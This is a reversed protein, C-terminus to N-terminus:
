DTEDLVYAIVQEATMARGEAWAAQGAAAPLAAWAATMAQEHRARLQPTPLADREERLAAAAGALHLARVPRNEAAAVGAFGELEYMPPHGLELSAAYAETFYANAAEPNARSHLAIFGLGILCRSMDDRDGLQHGLAVGEELLEQARAADEHQAALGAYSIAFMIGAPQELQRFIALSEEAVNRTLDIDGRRYHAAALFALSWAVGERDGAETFTVISETSLAIAEDFDGRNSAFYSAGNMAKARVSPAIGSGPLALLRTLWAKGERLYGRNWWFWQLANALRLGKEADGTALVFHMAERLNPLDRELRDLWHQQDAGRLRPECTEALDLFCAAHAHRVPIAEGSADLRGRAYERITELMTFRAAGGHADQRVLSNRTLSEIGDLISAPPRPVPSPPRLPNIGDGTRRGGDRSVTEAAELDWGGVFVALRRFLAQEDSTLLDHSWAIADHLTQHRAPADRPGGTLLPLAASAGHHSGTMRALLAQPPLVRVRAAALEVALPLGDLRACIEAVAPGTEEDLAFAPNVAKARAVFLRVAPYAALDSHKMAEGTPAPLPPVPFEHEGQIRLAARSTVLVTLRPGAALLGAVAPAADTLHEFNDLVLLLRRDGLAARFGEPAERHDARPLGLSQAIAPLVLRADNLPALLALAVGDFQQGLASAVALALRTKGVGGPGTLTLLRVEPRTLFDAIDSEERERGILPTPPTPFQTSLFAGAQRDPDPPIEGAHPVAALFGEREASSLALADALKRVTNPYPRRRVGRELASVGDVSLGALEALEPQTLGARERYQRLQQGFQSLANEDM